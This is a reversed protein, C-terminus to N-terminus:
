TWRSVEEAAQDLSYEPTLQLNHLCYREVELERDFLWATSANLRVPFDKRAQTLALMGSRHLGIRVVIISAGLYEFPDFGDLGFLAGAFEKDPPIEQIHFFEKLNGKKAVDQVAKQYGAEGDLNLRRTLPPLLEPENTTFVSARFPMAQIHGKYDKPPLAVRAQTMGLALALGFAVARDGALEPLTATGGQVMLSHYAFPTLTKAKVPLINVKM